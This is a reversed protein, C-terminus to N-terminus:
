MVTFIKTYIFIGYEHEGCLEKSATFDNYAALLSSIDAKDGDSIFSFNSSAVVRNKEAKGLARRLEDNLKAIPRIKNM